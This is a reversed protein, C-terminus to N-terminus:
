AAGRMGPEGSGQCESCIWAGSEDAGMGDGKCPRCSVLGIGPARAYIALAKIRARIATGREHCALAFDWADVWEQLGAIGHKMVAREGLILRHGAMTFENSLETRLKAIQRRYPNM